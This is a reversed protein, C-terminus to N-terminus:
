TVLLCRLEGIYEGDWYYDRKGGSNEGCCFTLSIRSASPALTSTSKTLRACKCVERAWTGVCVFTMSAELSIISRILPSFSHYKPLLSRSRSPGNLKFSTVITTISVVAAAQSVRFHIFDTKFTLVIYTPRAKNISHYKVPYDNASISLFSCIIFM